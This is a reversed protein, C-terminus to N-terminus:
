RSEGGTVRERVDAITQDLRHLRPHRERRAEPDWDVTVGEAATHTAWSEELEALALKSMGPFLGMWWDSPSPGFLLVWFFILMGLMDWTPVPVVLLLAAPLWVTAALMVAPAFAILTLHLNPVRNFSHIPSVRCVGARTYVPVGRIQVGDYAIETQLTTLKSVAYAHCHEHLVTTGSVFLLLSPIAALAILAGSM